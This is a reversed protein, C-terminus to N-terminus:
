GSGAAYNPPNAELAEAMQLCMLALERLECPEFFDSIKLAPLLGPIKDVTVVANVRLEYNGSRIEGRKVIKM